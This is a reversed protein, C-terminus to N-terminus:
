DYGLPVIIEHILEITCRDLACLDFDIINEALNYKGTDVILQAIKFLAQVDEMTNIKRHLKELHLMYNPDSSDPLISRDNDKITKVPVSDQEDESSFINREWKWENSEMEEQRGKSWDHKM